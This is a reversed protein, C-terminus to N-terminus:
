RRRIQTSQASEALAGAAEYMALINEMPTDVQIQHTPGVILGGNPFLKQRRRVERRVDDVTGAPLTSQVCISGAFCLQHGYERALERIDMGAATPQVVDLIDLGLEILRPIFKRVSGCSHMMLLAGHRHVMDFFARYLPAFLREFQVPSILPGRQTALDEGVRVIDILGGAALLAREAREYFFRFRAEMLTLYVPDDSAIGMLVREFGMVRAVGNILDVHGPDGFTLAHDRGAECQARVTTCDFQDATPFRGPDLDDPRMVEQYPKYVTERYCSEGTPGMPIWKWIEGWHGEWSGDPFTRLKAGRYVDEVSRFDHGLRELLALVDPVGFHAILRAQVEPVAEHKVPLRDYGCRKIASFVRDRHNM